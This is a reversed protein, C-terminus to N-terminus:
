LFMVSEYNVSELLSTNNKDSSTSKGLGSYALKSRFKYYEWLNRVQLTKYYLGGMYPHRSTGTLDLLGLVSRVTNAKYNVQVM